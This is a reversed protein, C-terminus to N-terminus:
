ELYYLYTTTAQIALLYGFTADFLKFYSWTCFYATKKKGKM